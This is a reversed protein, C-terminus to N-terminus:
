TLKGVAMNQHSMKCFYHAFISHLFVKRYFSSNIQKNLKLWYISQWQYCLFYTLLYTFRLNINFM